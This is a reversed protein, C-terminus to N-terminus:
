AGLGDLPNYPLCQWIVEVAGAPPTMSRAFAMQTRCANLTTYQRPHWGPAGTVRLGDAMVLTPVLWGPPEDGKAPGTAVWVGALIAWAAIRM